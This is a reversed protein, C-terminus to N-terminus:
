AAPKRWVESKLLGGGLLTREELVLGASAFAAEDQPLRQTRLGTLVFFAAYLGRVIAWGAIRALGSAPITFDSNVWLGGPELHPVLRAVLEAVQQTSFCDLFFHTVILDCRGEPGWALADAHTWQVRNSGGDSASRKRALAVMGASCDVAHVDIQRNCRLLKQLFRGDGDGLVFARRSAQMADLHSYRATELLTGFSFYEMWRYARAIRSFDTM